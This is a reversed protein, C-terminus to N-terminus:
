APLRNGVFPAQKVYDASTLQTLLFAALDTVRITPGPLYDLRAEVNGVAPGELLYPLRVYTWALESATLLHLERARDAMFHPYHQQMYATAQKTPADHQEQDTQYFSTVVVYRQIHLAQLIVVLHATVNSLMPTTEGKPNGLTSLLAQCGALLHHLAAPDRADGTLVTLREHQIPFDAPHRLLLRVHYGAQLAQQVLPQGAKGAGGLIAITSFPSM